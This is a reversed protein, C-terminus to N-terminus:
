GIKFQLRGRDNRSFWDQGVKKGYCKDSELSVASVTICNNEKTPKNKDDTGGVPIYVGQPSHNKYIIFM